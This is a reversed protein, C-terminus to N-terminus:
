LIIGYYKSIMQIISTTTTLMFLSLWNQQYIINLVLQGNVLQKDEDMRDLIIIDDAKFNLKRLM